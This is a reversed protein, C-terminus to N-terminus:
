FEVSHFEGDGGSGDAGFGIHKYQKIAQFYGVQSQEIWPEIWITLIGLTLGCLIAWGLFSLDLVFLQWKFGKTQQKSMRIAEMVGMEPDECLNYLAFRYRYAAVIGPIVFLMTWLAIFISTVLNVLIVKGAFAFGDFLTGYGMKKGQRIGLHYVSWGAALLNTLLWVVVSVFTVMIAPFEPRPLWYPVTIGQEAFTAAIGGSVYTDVGGIIAAIGLFLLAFWYASVKANKVITKAERKLGIRDLLM